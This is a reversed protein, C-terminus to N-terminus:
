QPLAMRCYAEKGVKLAGYFFVAVFGALVSAQIGFREGLYGSVVLIVSSTGKNELANIRAWLEKYKKDNTCLFITLEEKVLEWYRKEPRSDDESLKIHRPPRTSAQPPWPGGRCMFQAVADMDSVAGIEWAMLATAEYTLEYPNLLELLDTSEM